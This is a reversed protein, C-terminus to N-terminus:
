DDYYEYNNYDEDEYEFTDGGGGDDGYDYSWWIAQQLWWLPQNFKFQTTWLSRLKTKTTTNLTTM